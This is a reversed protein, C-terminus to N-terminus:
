EPEDYNDMCAQIFSKLAAGFAKPDDDHIAGLMEQAAGEEDGDHSPKAKAHDSKRIKDLVLAVMPHSAM